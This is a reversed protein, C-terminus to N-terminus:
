GIARFVASRLRSLRRERQNLILRYEAGNIHHSSMGPTIEGSVKSASNRALAESTNPAAAGCGSRPLPSVKM